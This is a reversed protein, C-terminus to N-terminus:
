LERDSGGYIFRLRGFDPAALMPTSDFISFGSPWYVFVAKGVLYDRPVTGKRYTKDGNGIGDSAWWRADESNPSNDGLVFFEDAGLTFPRGRGARCYIDGRYGAALYHADRFIAMHSLELKGSGFITATAEFPNPPIVGMSNPDRGMDLEAHGKGFEVMLKHDVSSFSFITPTAADVKGGKVRVLEEEAKTGKKRTIVLDGDARVFGRYVSDYKSLSAGVTGEQRGTVYFRVKLDSCYEAGRSFGVDNYSYAAIFGNGQLTNYRMTNLEDPKSDLTMVTPRRPDTQWKSGKVNEFPQKWRKGNFKPVDPNVPQYDNDYIVSWLEEQVKPPKRMIKNDIYIDGDIIEITEGPKGVLRKIYSIKPELPNKFVVVDWRQPEFVQYVCKLVLIRDGNYVERREGSPMYYGCSPCKIQLNVHSYPSVPVPVPPVAGAPLGYREPIFGYDYSYGCEPCQLRFHAGKLTDAMSGTPIRFAEMVFARFVFALMFATVLWELTNIFEIFLNKSKKVEAAM